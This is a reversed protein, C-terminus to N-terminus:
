QSHKPYKKCKILITMKRLVVHSFFSLVQQQPQLQTQQHSQTQVPPPISSPVQTQPQPQQQQINNSTTQTTTTTTTTTTPVKQESEINAQQISEVIKQILNYIKEREAGNYFWIGNVENNKNSYLMYPDTNQIQFDASIEEVMNETNLRNMVLFQYFPAQKRRVIFLTGEVEKRHWTATIKDFRYGTVYNASELVEIIHPDKRQLVGLNHQVQQKVDRNM